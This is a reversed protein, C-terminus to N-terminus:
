VQWWLSAAADSGGKAWTIFAVPTAAQGASLAREGSPEGAKAAWEEGILVSAILVASVVFSRM